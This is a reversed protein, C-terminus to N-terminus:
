GSCIFYLIFFFFLHFSVMSNDFILIEFYFFHKTRTDWPVMLGFILNRSWLNRGTPTRCLSLCINWLSLSSYIWKVALTMRGKDIDHRPGISNLETLSLLEYINGFCIQTFLKTKLIQNQGSSIHKKIETKDVNEQGFGWLLNGFNHSTDVLLRRLFCFHVHIFFTQMSCTHISFSKKFIDSIPLIVVVGSEELDIWECM